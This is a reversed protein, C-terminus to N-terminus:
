MDVFAARKVVHYIEVVTNKKYFTFLTYKNYGDVVKHGKKYKM